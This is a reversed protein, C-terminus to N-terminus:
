YQHPQEVEKKELEALCHCTCSINMSRPALQQQYKSTSEEDAYCNSSNGVKAYVIQYLIIFCAYKVLECEETPQQNGNASWKTINSCFFKTSPPGCRRMFPM